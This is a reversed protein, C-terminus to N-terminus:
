MSEVKNSNLIVTANENRIIFFMSVHTYKLTTSGVIYNRLKNRKDEIDSQCGIDVFYLKVSLYQKNQSNSIIKESRSLM